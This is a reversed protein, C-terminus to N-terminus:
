WTIDGHKKKFEIGTVYLQVFFPLVIILGLYKEQINISQSIIHAIFVSSLQVLYWLLAKLPLGLYALGAGSILFSFLLAIYPNQGSYYGKSLSLAVFILGIIVLLVILLIESLMAIFVLLM